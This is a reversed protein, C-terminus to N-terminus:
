GCYRMVRWQPPWSVAACGAQEIAAPLMDM